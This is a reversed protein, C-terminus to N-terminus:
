LIMIIMGAALCFIFGGAAIIDRNMVIRKPITATEPKWWQVAVFATALVGFLVFLAIIKGDSYPYTSGGRQLALLLSVICPLLFFEGLLDLQLLQQKISLGKQEPETPKLMLFIAM